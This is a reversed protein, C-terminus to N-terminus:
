FGVQLVFIGPFMAFLITTPLILFVLPILMLVDKKGATEILAARAESRTDHVHSHLVAALPTGRELAAIVQEICRTFAPLNVVHACERLAQALPEGAEVARTVSRLEHALDGTGTHALRAIADGLSEGASLSLALLEMITPLEASLRIRRRAEARRLVWESAALAATGGALTLLPTLAPPVATHPLLLMGAASGVVIGSAFGFLQELRFRDVGGAKGARSLRLELADPQGLLALAAASATGPEPRLLSAILPLPHVTARTTLHRASPSVDALYPAIRVHLPARTFRPLAAVVSWLGVGLGAGALLAWSTTDSM